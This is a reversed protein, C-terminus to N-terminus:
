INVGLGVVLNHLDNSNSIIEKSIKEAMEYDFKKRANPSLKVHEPGALEVVLHSLLSPDAKRYSTADSIVVGEDKLARKIEEEVNRLADRMTETAADTLADIEMKRLITPIEYIHSAFAQAAEQTSLSVLLDEVDPRFHANLTGWTIENRKVTFAVYTYKTSQLRKFKNYKGRLRKWEEKVEPIIVTELFGNLDNKYKPPVKSMPIVFTGWSSQTPLTFGHALLVKKFPSVEKGKQFVTKLQSVGMESKIIVFLDDDRKIISLLGRESIYGELVIRRIIRKLNSYREESKAVEVIKEVIVQQGQIQTVVNQIQEKSVEHMGKKLENLNATPNSGHLAMLRSYQNEPTNDESLNAKNLSDLFRQVLDVQHRLLYLHILFLKEGRELSLDNAAADFVYQILDYELDSDIRTKNQFETWFRNQVNPAMSSKLGDFQPLLRRITEDIASLRSNTERIFEARLRETEKKRQRNKYISALLSGLALTLTFINVVGFFLAFIGSRDLLSVLNLMLALAILSVAVIALAVLADVVKSLLEKYGAM